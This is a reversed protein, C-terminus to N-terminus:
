TFSAVAEQESEYVQFVTLLKTIVLLERIRKTLNLLKLQKGENTVTIYTRVLEGIGSSDVYPVDTLNLVIKTGGNQLLDTITHRIRATAEGLVIRGSIDLVHVDGVRRTHIEMHREELALTKQARRLSTAGSSPL